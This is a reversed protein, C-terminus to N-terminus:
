DQLLAAYKVKMYGSRMEQNCFSAHCPLWVASPQLLSGNARLALSPLLLPVPLYATDQDLSCVSEISSPM